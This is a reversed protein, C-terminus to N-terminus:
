VQSVRPALHDSSEPRSAWEYYGGRSVGLMRCLDVMPYNAAEAAIFQYNASM